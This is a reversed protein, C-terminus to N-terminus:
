ARRARAARSRDRPERDAVKGCPSEPSPRYEVPRPNKHCARYRQNASSGGSIMM